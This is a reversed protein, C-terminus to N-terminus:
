ASIKGTVVLSANGDLLGVTVAQVELNLRSAFVSAQEPSSPLCFTKNYAATDAESVVQWHWKLVDMHGTDELESRAKKWWDRSAEEHCYGAFLIKADVSISQSVNNVIRVLDEQNYNPHHVVVADFKDFSLGSLEKFSRRVLKLRRGFAGCQARLLRLADSDSDMVTVKALPNMALFSEVVFESKAAGLFLVRKSNHLENLMSDVFKRYSQSRSLIQEAGVIYRAHRSQDDIRKYLDEFFRVRETVSNINLTINWGLIRGSIRDLIPSMIKMFVMRGYEPSVFVVRERDTIPIVGEGYLKAERNPIRRFNDILKYWESVKMGRKLEPIGSFVTEFAINWDIIRQDQSLVFGPVGGLFFSQDARPDKDNWLRVGMGYNRRDSKAASPKDLRASAIDFSESRDNGILRQFKNMINSLNLM